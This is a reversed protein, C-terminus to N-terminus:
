DASAPAPTPNRAATILQYIERAVYRKLCRIAERRTKGEAIRRELYERSRSEWRLRALVVTYLASNAQRDGGRNLRRRQTKGSSAEVPSVGCLAAFSGEGGMRDPNDGAAILLAAATDPGVGYCDLLKPAYSNIASTIRATLDNIEETLHLIRVALLRLTHRAAMAPTTGTAAELESCRRILKPNSLGALSERLGPDASVLVAKLQNIAQSRSKVASSKAMKFLRVTEVPGDATKATATARGSLVAQAAAGADIADTKGRRRRLAKDPQNVETVAIGERHLYRTLAAGYSGTCEVGARKLGGFARAWSLLQRYGERTTPFSRTDLLAGTSTIVAAVHVDKHTDVGLIIDEPRRTTDHLPPAQRTM